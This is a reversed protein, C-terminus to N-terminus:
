FDIIYDRNCIVLFSVRGSVNCHKLLQHIYIYFQARNRSLTVGYECEM